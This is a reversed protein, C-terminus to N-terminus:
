DFRPVCMWTVDTDRAVLACGQGDGVLGHDEIPLYGDTRRLPRLPMKVARDVERM